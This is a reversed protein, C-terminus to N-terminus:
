KMAQRFVYDEDYQLAGANSLCREAEIMSEIPSGGADIKLWNDPESHAALQKRVVDATADSADGTRQSVREVLQAEPADLWLGTFPTGTASAVDELRKRQNDESFVADVVVSHGSRLAAEAKEFVRSYTQESAEESYGRAGLRETEGAGFLLKRELDSRLHVAGPVSGVHCAIKAALTSKGTGSLGGVAILHPEVPELFGAAFRFYKGAEEHSPEPDDQQEARQGAVMARIGARCSLFLPLATLGHYHEPTAMHFLYRNLLLNAQHRLDHEWLDMVLFALEYLVDTTALAEDFELADFLVPEGELSVINGLHLDGHCRRIWGQKAREDLLPSVGELTRRLAQDFARAEEAPFCQPLASYAEALEDVIWEIAAAGSIDTAVPASQHSSAVVAALSKIMGMSIRGHEAVHSLVCDQPFRQMHVSWEVPEGTGGLRLAGENDRTIPVVGLYIGPAAPANLEHERLCIRHRKELTSLDMYPYKVAKKIKYVQDGALFVIAAHTEIREVELTDDGYFAGRSMAAILERQGSDQVLGACM